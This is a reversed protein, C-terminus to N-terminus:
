RRDADDLEEGFDLGGPFSDVISANSEEDQHDEGLEATHGNQRGLDLEVTKGSSILLDCELHELQQLRHHVQHAQHAGAQEGHDRAVPRHHHDLGDVVVGIVVGQWDGLREVQWCKWDQGDVSHEEHDAELILDHKLLVQDHLPDYFVAKYNNM